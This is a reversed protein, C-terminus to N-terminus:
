IEGKLEDIHVLAKFFDTLIVFIKKIFDNFSDRKTVSLKIDSQKFSETKEFSFVAAALAHDSLNAGSDNKLYEYVFSQATVKVGGGDRYFFKEASDWNGWAPVGTAFYSSFDKYDGGNHLEVWAEKMGCSDLFYESLGDDNKGMNFYANFDGTVIVPRDTGKSNILESVQRYNDRRAEKSGQDGYADVHVDYFDVLVGDGLDLVCYLIGKPTMEDAGNAIVGYAKEWTTRTENYVPYRSYVNMGDGGPIGGTHQTEYDFGELTSKLDNHYGFDEQVAIVDYGKSTLIRGNDLQNQRVNKEGKGVFAKFDPLGAVNYNCFSVTKADSALSVAPLAGLLLLCALVISFVRNTKKM